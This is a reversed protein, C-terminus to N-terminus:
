VANGQGDALVQFEVHRPDDIFKEIFVSDDGFSNKALVRISELAKEMEQENSVMKIGIGGGGASAKLMIPYGVENAIDKAKEHDAIAEVVGPVVRVGAGIMSKKADIKSGMLRMASEPPGIFEIGNDHCKKCFDANEALFGYGPHIGEVDAKLAVDILTDQVLYSMKAPGPGINHAEDAYKVFLANKDADSYVAVTEIGLEKCARMVRIAIEGRNAIMVKNLLGEKAM